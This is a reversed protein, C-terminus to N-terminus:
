GRQSNCEDKFAQRAEKRKAARDVQRQFKRRSAGVGHKSYTRTTYHDEHNTNAIKKAINMSGM